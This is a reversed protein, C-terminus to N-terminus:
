SAKATTGPPIIEEVYILIKPFDDNFVKERLATGIRSRAINYLEKRFRRIPRLARLCRKLCLTVSAVFSKAVAVLFAM